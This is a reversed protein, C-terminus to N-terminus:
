LMIEKISQKGLHRSYIRIITEYILLYAFLTFFCLKFDFAYDPVEAVDKFVIEVMFKLLGYQYVSGCAFGIYNWIRYGGFVANRCEKASYGFVQMMLATKRNAQMVSTLALLLSVFALTLGILLVMMGMLESALENMSASMQIMASFCFSGFAIFFVLSKKQKTISRKLGNLFSLEEKDKIKRIRLFSSGKILSLAPTKLQWLAITIALVSFALAPVVVLLLMLEAHFHIPVDPLIGDENQVQYYLPMTLFAAFYGLATGIFVSCGFIGFKVAIRWNGYGLAKLIGFERQHSDIYHKIYFILLVISTLLLCGGSVACVVKCTMMQANFFIRQATDTIENEVAQLDFYYNLFLGCVYVACFGVVSIGFLKLSDKLRIM